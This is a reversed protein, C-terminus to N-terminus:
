FAPGASRVAMAGTFQWITRSMHPLDALAHSTGV